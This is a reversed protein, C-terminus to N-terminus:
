DEGDEKDEGDEEEYPFVEDIIESHDFCYDLLMEMIDSRNLETEKALEDINDLLYAPLTITVQTRKGSLRKPM